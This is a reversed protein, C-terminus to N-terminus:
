TPWSRTPPPSLDYLEVLGTGPTPDQWYSDCYVRGTGVETFHGAGVSQCARTWEEPYRRILIAKGTTM